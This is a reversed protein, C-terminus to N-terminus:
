ARRAPGSPCIRRVDDDISLRGDRALLLISMATFQKTVSAVHFVSEPTIPVGLELSARGYGRELVTARRPERRRQLRALGVDAVARVASRRAGRHVGPGGTVLARAGHRRGVRGDRDRGARVSRDAARAADAAGGAAAGGTSHTAPLITAARM